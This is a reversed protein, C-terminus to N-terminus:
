TVKCFMPSFQLLYNSRFYFIVQAVMTKPSLFKSSLLGLFKPLFLLSQLRFNPTSHNIRMQNKAEVRMTDCNSKLMNVVVKIKIHRISGLPCV